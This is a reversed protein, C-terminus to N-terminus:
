LSKPGFGHLKSGPTHTYAMCTDTAAPIYTSGCSQLTLATGHELVEEATRRHVDFRLPNGQPNSLVEFVQEKSTAPWLVAM